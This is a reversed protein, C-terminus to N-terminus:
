LRPCGFELLRRAQPSYNPQRLLDCEPKEPVGFFSSIANDRRTKKVTKPAAQKTPRSFPPTPHVTNM